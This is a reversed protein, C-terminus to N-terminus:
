RQLQAEFTLIDTIEVEYQSKFLAIEDAPLGRLQQVRRMATLLAVIKDISHVSPNLCDEGTPGCVPALARSAFLQRPVAPVPRISLAMRAASFGGILEDYQTKVQPFDKPASGSGLQFFLTQAKANLGGLSQYTAQDYDPLLRAACGALALALCLAAVAGVALRWSQAARRSWNGGLVATRALAM